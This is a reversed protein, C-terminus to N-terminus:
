TVGGGLSVWPRSSSGPQPQDRYHRPPEHGHGHPWIRRPLHPVWTSTSATWSVLFRRPPDYKRCSWYAPCRRRPRRRRYLCAHTVGIRMMMSGGAVCHAQRGAQRVVIALLAGIAIAPCPVRLRSVTSHQQHVRVVVRRSVGTSTCRRHAAAAWRVIVDVFEPAHLPPMCWGCGDCRVLM